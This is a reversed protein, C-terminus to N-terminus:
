DAHTALVRPNLSTPAGMWPTPGCVAFAREALLERKVGGVPNIVDDGFAAKIQPLIPSGPALAERSLDDLDIRVAGLEEFVRAVTSKGSAIGGALNAPRSGM